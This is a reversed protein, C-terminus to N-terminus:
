FVCNRHKVCSEKCREMDEDWECATFLPVDTEHEKYKIYSKACQESATVTECWSGKALATKSALDSCGASQCCVDHNSDEKQLVESAKPVKKEDSSCSFLSCSAKCCNSKEKDTSQSEKKDALYGEPCTFSACTGDCCNHQTVDTSSSQKEDPVYGAPCTFTACTAQCCTDQTVDTSSSHEPNAVYGDPCTFTDCTAECCKDKSVDTSAAHKKNAVFDKPCSFSACTAQCCNDETVDTSDSKKANAVFGEPCTFTSCTAECCTDKGVNTSDSKESNAVFGDTCTFTSCTAKCCTDKSLDTSDSKESDAVYGDPCTFTSCPLPNKKSESPGAEDQTIVPPSNLLGFIHDRRKETHPNGPTSGFTIVASEPCSYTITVAKAKQSDTLELSEIANDKGIGYKTGKYEMGDAVKKKTLQTNPYRFEKHEGHVIVYEKVDEEPATDMDYATINLTHPRFPKNAEDKMVFELKIHHNYPESIMGLNTPKNHQGNGDTNAMGNWHKFHADYHSLAHVELKVTRKSGDARTELVDYFIGEEGTGPGKGDLNDHTLKVIDYWALPACSEDLGLLSGGFFNGSNESRRFAVVAFLGIGLLASLLTSRRTMCQRGEASPTGAFPEAVGLGRVGPGQNKPVVVDQDSLAGAELLVGNEVSSYAM